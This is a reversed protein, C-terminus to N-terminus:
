PRIKMPLLPFLGNLAMPYVSKLNLNRFEELESPWFSGQLSISTSRPAQKLINKIEETPMKSSSLVIQKDGRELAKGGEEPYFCVNDISKKQICAGARLIAKEEWPSFFSDSSACAMVSFDFNRETFCSVLTYVGSLRSVISLATKQKLVEGYYALITQGKFICGAEEPYIIIEDPLHGNKNKLYHKLLDRGFFLGDQEAQIFFALPSKSSHASFSLVPELNM